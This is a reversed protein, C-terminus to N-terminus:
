ELGLIVRAKRVIDTIKIESKILYSVIGMELAEALRENEGVNTLLMVPVHMGWPDQKLEKLMSIGDMKPMVIDLVILDPHNKLGSQLGEKGNRAELVKMGEKKFKESLASLVDLEDDVLLITRADAQKEM